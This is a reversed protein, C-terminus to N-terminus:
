EQVVFNVLRGPVVITRLVKKGELRSAVAGRAAQEVEDKGAESTVQVDGRTKGNIQVAIQVTDEKLRDPDFQPWSAQHVSSKHGVEYWLEESLHPAFPALMRIFADWQTRLVKKSKEAQNLFIMLQSIATNFKLAGIDDGVKKITRHLLPELEPASEDSIREQLRVVRELFRRVGVVGDPNWPFSSVENYPGVFALYMRVTDAGLRQVVSDPDVVNGRSKSMKQGDPGLIISRNMRRTYPEPDKVLGLDFLAKHWFRSYLVHMTTHEAGGSYLDVPLWSAMKKADAFKKKNKPDAYRLFYWSSDVFTDLTDTELEAKGKCKQGKM